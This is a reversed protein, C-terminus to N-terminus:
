CHGSSSARVVLDLPQRGAVVYGSVVTYMSVRETGPTGCRRPVFCNTREEPKSRVSKVFTWRESLEAKCFLVHSPKNGGSLLNHKWRHRDTQRNVPNSL